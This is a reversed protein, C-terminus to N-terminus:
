VHSRWFFPLKAATVALEVATGADLPQSASVPIDITLPQQANSSLNVFYRIQAGLYQRM